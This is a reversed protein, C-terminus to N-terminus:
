LYDIALHTLTVFPVSGNMVLGNMEKNSTQKLNNCLKHIFPM